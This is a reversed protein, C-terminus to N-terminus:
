PAQHETDRMAQVLAREQIHWRRVARFDHFHQLSRWATFLFFFLVLTALLPASANFVVIGALIALPIALLSDRYLRTQCDHVVRELAVLHDIRRDISAAEILAPDALLSEPLLPVHMRRNVAETLAQDREKRAREIDPETAHSGSHRPM